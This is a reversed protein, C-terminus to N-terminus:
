EQMYSYRYADGLTVIWASHNYLDYLTEQM